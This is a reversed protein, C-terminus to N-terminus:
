GIMETSKHINSWNLLRYRPAKGDFFNEFSILGVDQLIDLANHIAQRCRPNGQLKLGLHQAIEEQTFVYDRKFKYRQGLYIYVKIVSEKITDNIFQITELPLLLYIDEVNPLIYMDGKDELYGTEILYQLHSRFTKPSKVGIKEAMKAQSPLNVKEIITVGDVPYSMSQLYSYLEADIKSDKLFTIEKTLDTDAPFRKQVM